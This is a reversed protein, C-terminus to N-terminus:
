FEWGATLGLGDGAVVPTVGTPALASSSEGSSGSSELVFFLVAAGAAAGAVGWGILSYKEFKEGEDVWDEYQRRVEGEYGRPLNTGPDRFDIIGDIDEERSSATLGMVAATTGAAVAIGVSVWAATRKWTGGEDLFTPPKGTDPGPADDGAWAGDGGTGDGGTGDGGTGGDGTGDGGTGDGGDGGDGGDTQGLTAKCADVRTQADARAKDDPKGEKLYRGYYILASECDGAKDYSLAIKFFLIPDKTIQYAAGFERAAIAFEGADLAKTAKGYHEKAKAYDPKAGGDQARAVGGLVVVLM